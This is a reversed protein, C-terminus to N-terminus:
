EIADPHVTIKRSFWYQAEIRALSTSYSPNEIEKYVVM